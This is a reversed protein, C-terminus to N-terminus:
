FALRIFIPICPPMMSNTLFADKLAKEAEDLRGLAMLATSYNEYWATSDPDLKLASEAYKAAQEYDGTVFFESSLNGM